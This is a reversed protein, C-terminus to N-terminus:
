EESLQRMIEGASIGSDKSYINILRLIDKLRRRHGCMYCNTNVCTANADKCSFRLELNIAGQMAVSFCDEQCKRCVPKGTKLDGGVGQIAFKLAKFLEVELRALEDDDDDDTVQARPIKDDDITAANTFHIAAEESM